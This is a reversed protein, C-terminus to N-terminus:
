PRAEQGRELRARYQTEYYSRYAGDRARELWAGNARYWAVTRDLGEDLSLAPRWGLERRALASDLAYRFDHGPRDPVFRILSEDRGLRALIRRLLTLNDVEDDGGLNYVAGARGRELAAWIGACHDAVHIWNRVNKGEGYLPVPQGALANAIALPIFKEPFQYPGYNNSGRTIVVPQGHTHFAARVLLEAAAKSAAYPSNPALPSAETFKGEAGLSGYVEDTSVHVFRAVQRRRAADLLTQTGQVNTRIFAAADLISRDVHSEAALHVVADQGAMLRDVLAADCIDGHVFRYRPDAELEALNELNGAYTLADLNTLELDRQARLAHRVFNSGIFGAGGTVLLRM